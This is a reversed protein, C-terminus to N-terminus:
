IVGCFLMAMQCKRFSGKTVGENCGFQAYECVCVYLDQGQEMVEFMFTIIFNFVEFGGAARSYKLLVIIM